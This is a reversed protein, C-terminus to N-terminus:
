RGIEMAEIDDLVKLVTLFSKIVENMGPIFETNKGVVTQLNTLPFYRGKSDKGLIGNLTNIMTQSAYVIQDLITKADEEAEEIIIQIKRRKVPIPTSSMDQRAQSYRKGYEGSLSINYEFKKIEDELKILNNYGETFELRNEKKQFDGEILIPRLVWNIDPMFVASYFTYLFSLAFAGKVPIGDPNAETQSNALTKLPKDKLFVSFSEILESQRNERLYDAYYSEIRKKWYDRFVAYWDEGGSLEHPTLTMDRTCCRLLLTLPVNKNFDQIVALAQEARALLLHSERDIDFGQEGVREQLIFIFLSGLLEMPPVIKLSLLINNLNILLDRVIGTSCTEGNESADHSFALIVRDYLFSSLEKLINLCRADFYMANRKEEVILAFADEMRKFAVQRLEIDSLGPHAKAYAIPNAENQLIRHVDPMELSGLYAFFAGRDRNVSSDLASYFFHAAEKLRVMYRYFPPLFIGKQYDYLGPAKEEIVTALTSFKDDEFIKIPSTSKFLSLFFFWLHSYWPLRSYATEIDYSHKDDDDRYLLTGSLVSQSKLKDLLDHREEISLVSALKTLNTSEAM